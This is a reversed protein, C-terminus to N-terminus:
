RGFGRASFRVRERLAARLVRQARGSGVPHRARAFFAACSRAGLRPREERDVFVIRPTASTARECARRGRRCPMVVRYTGSFWREMLAATESYSATRADLRGFIREVLKRAVQTSLM